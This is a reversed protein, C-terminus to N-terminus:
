ARGLPIAVYRTGQESKVRMLVSHKGEERAKGLAKRLEDPTAVAKGAVELIVDGPKLGAKEAPSGEIPAIVVLFCNPGFTACDSTDGSADVSGIVAGIGEFRGSIDQITTTYDDPSQYSSYPDGVAEVMGKIAGEILTTRDVMELPFRDHIANYADWFPQFAERDTAATGNASANDQGLQYGSIFLAGGAMVAVLVMSVAFAWGRRPQPRSPLVPALVTQELLGTPPPAASPAPPELLAPTEPFSPDSPAGEAASNTPDNPLM